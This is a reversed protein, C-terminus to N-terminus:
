PSVRREEACNLLHLERLVETPLHEWQRCIAKWLLREGTVRTAGYLSDPPYLHRVSDIYDQRDMTKKERARRLYVLAGCQDCEGAPMPGGPDVRMELDPVPQILQDESDFIEGCNDCEYVQQM